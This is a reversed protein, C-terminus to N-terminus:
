DPRPDTVLPRILNDLALWLFGDVDGRTFGRM